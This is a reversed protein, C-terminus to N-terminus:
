VNLSRLRSRYFSSLPSFVASHGLILDAIRLLTNVDDATHLAPTVNLCDEIWSGSISVLQDIDEQLVRDAPYHRRTMLASSLENVTSGCSGEYEALSTVNVQGRM